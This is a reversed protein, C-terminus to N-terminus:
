GHHASEARFLRLTVACEEIIVIKTADQMMTTWESAGTTAGKVPGM